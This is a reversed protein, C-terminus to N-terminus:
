TQPVNKKRYYCSRGKPFQWERRVLGHLKTSATLCLEWSKPQLLSFRDRLKRPESTAPLWLLLNTAFHSVNFVSFLKCLFHSSLSVCCLDQRCSISDDLNGLALHVKPRRLNQETVLYKDGAGQGLELQFERMHLWFSEGYFLTFVLLPHWIGILHVRIIIHVLFFYFKQQIMIAHHKCMFLTKGTKNRVGQSTSSM